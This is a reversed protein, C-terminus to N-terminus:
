LDDDGDDSGSDWDDQYAESIEAISNLMDERDDVDSAWALQTKLTKTMKSVSKDTYLSAETPM